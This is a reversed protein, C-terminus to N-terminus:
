HAGQMPLFHGSVRAQLQQQHHKLETALAGQLSGEVEERLQELSDRLAVEMADRRLAEEGKLLAWDLGVWAVTGAAVACTLALPGGPACMLAGSAAGAGVRATGRIVGRAALRRGSLAAAGRATGRWLMVGALAGGSSLTLRENTSLLSVSAMEQKLADMSLRPRDSHEPATGHLPAPVQHPALREMVREMWGERTRVDHQALAAKARVELTMLSAEWHSDHFLMQEAKERVFNGENWGLLSALSMGMRSYEGGLSYYWDLFAPIQGEVRAFLRDLHAETTAMLSDRGLATRDRFYDESFRQLQGLEQRSLRYHQDSATIHVSDRDQWPRQSQEGVLWVLVAMLALSLLLRVPGLWSPHSTSGGSGGTPSPLVPTLPYIATSGM